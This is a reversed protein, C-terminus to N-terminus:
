SRYDANISIYDHTLDCTWVVARGPGSGVSVEILIEREKLHLPSRRRTSTRWRPRRRPRRCPRRLQDRAAGARGARRGQRGGDRGPGLERGRRRDRDQGPALQGRELAIRRASQDSVAGGVAVTILKSAGEGDRVVQQALDRLVQELAARFDALVPEDWASRCRIRRRAPRSCCCRTPPRATATWPSPTSRASTPTPWCRSCSRPRCRPM